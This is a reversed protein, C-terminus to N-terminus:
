KPPFTGATKRLTLDAVALDFRLQAQAEEARILADQAQLLDVQTVTGAEYQTRVLEITERALEVARVAAHVGQRKTDVLSRGNALDDRINDKLVEARAEAEERQANAHHREADRAGGDYLVWDLQVGVAWSYNNRAFNDYNFRRANGFASIQPSWRWADTKAKLEAAVVSLELSRFEARLKLV